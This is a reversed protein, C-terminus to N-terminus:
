NLKNRAPIIHMTCAHVCVYVYMYMDVYVSVSQDSVHNYCQLELYEQECLNSDLLKRWSLFKIVRRMNCVTAYIQQM